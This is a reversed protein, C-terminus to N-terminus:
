RAPAGGPERGARLSAGLWLLCLVGVGVYEWRNERLDLVPAVWDGWGLASALAPALWLVGVLRGAVAWVLGLRLRVDGLVVGRFLQGFFDLHLVAPLAAAVLLASGRDARRALWPLLRGRALLEELLPLGLWLWWWALRWWGDAAQVRRLWSGDSWLLEHVLAPAWLELLLFACAPLALAGLEAVGWALLLGPLKRPPLRWGWGAPRVAGPGRRAVLLGLVVVVAVLALLSPLLPRLPLPLAAGRAARPLIKPCRPPSLM